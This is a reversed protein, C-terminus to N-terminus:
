RRLLVGDAEFSYTRKPETISAIEDASKGGDEAHHRQEDVSVEKISELSLVGKKITAACGGCKLNEIQIDAKM